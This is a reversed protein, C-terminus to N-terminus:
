DSTSSQWNGLQVGAVGRNIEVLAAAHQPHSVRRQAPLASSLSSASSPQKRSAKAQQARAGPLRGDLVGSREQVVAQQSVARSRPHRAIGGMRLVVVM